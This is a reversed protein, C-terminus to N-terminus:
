QKKGLEELKELLIAVCLNSVPRNEKEALTCLAEYKELPITIAIRKGSYRGTKQPKNSMTTNTTGVHHPQNNRAEIAEQLLLNTMQSRTRHEKKALEGLKEFVDDDIIASLNKSM